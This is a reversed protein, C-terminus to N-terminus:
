SGDGNFALLRGKRVEISVTGDRDTRWTRVGRERSRTRARVPASPRLPQPPRLFHRRHAPAIADLTADSTSSRSGHHAVKLVDARLDRDALVLEAEKEIDGTLLFRRGGSEARLVVSANNEPARRFTTDALM